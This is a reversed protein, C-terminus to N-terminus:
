DTNEWTLIGRRSYPGLGRFIPLGHENDEERHVVVHVWAEHSERLRERDVSLVGSLSSKALVSDIFDADEADLGSIAGTGSHKPGEFFDFLDNAPSVLKRGKGEVDNHLPVFVGEAEPHLCSAGGTQNSYVIGSPYEVILGLGVSEWLQVVPKTVSVM